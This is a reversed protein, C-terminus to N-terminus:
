FGPRGAEQARKRRRTGSTPAGFETTLDSLCRGGKCITGRRLTRPTWALDEEWDAKQGEPIPTLTLELTM